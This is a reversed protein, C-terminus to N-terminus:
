PRKHRRELSREAFEYRLLLVAPLDLRLLPPPRLHGFSGPFERPPRSRTGTWGKSGHRLRTTFRAPKRGIAPCRIAAPSRIGASRIRAM